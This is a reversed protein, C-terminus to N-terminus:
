RDRQAPLVAVEDGRQSLLQTVFRQGEGVREVEIATAEVAQELGDRRADLEPPLQITVAHRRWLRRAFAISLPLVCVVLFTMSLIAATEAQAEAPNRPPSTTAGPIAAAQAQQREAVAFQQRLELIRADVSKLQTELGERDVGTVNTSRLQDAINDREADAHELQDHIVNRQARMAEYMERATPAQRAAAPAVAQGVQAPATPTSPAPAAAAGQPM